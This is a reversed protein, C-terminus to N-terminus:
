ATTKRDLWDLWDLFDGVNRGGGLISPNAARQDQMTVQTLPTSRPLGPQLIRIAGSAGLFHAAYLTGRTIAVGADRLAKVNRLTFSTARKDQEERTPLYGGFALTRDPGWAGGEALWTSRIFQYLGSASSSAAKVHLRDGSEIRALMELYGAPLGTTPEVQAVPTGGAKVIVLAFAARFEPGFSGDAGFRPLTVGPVTLMARQLARIDDRTM